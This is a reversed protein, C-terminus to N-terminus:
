LEQNKKMIYDNDPNRLEKNYKTTSTVLATFQENWTMFSSSAAPAINRTSAREAVGPDFMFATTSTFM